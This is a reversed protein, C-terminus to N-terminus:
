KLLPLIRQLRLSNVAAAEDLVDPRYGPPHEGPIRFVRSADIAQTDVHFYLGEDQLTKEIQVWRALLQMKVAQIGEAM